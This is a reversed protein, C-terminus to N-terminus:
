TGVRPYNSGPGERLNAFDANYLNVVGTIREQLLTETPTAIYTETPQSPTPTQTNTAIPLLAAAEEDGPMCNPIILEQGPHVLATGTFNNAAMLEQLTFRDDNLAIMALSDASQVIYTCQENPIDITPTESGPICNPIILVQGLHVLATEAMNNAAMLEQLTFRDDNQVIKILSDTPQVVYTCQEDDLESDASESADDSSDLTEQNALSGDPSNSSGIRLTAQVDGSADTLTLVDGDDWVPENQEWFLSIPTNQGSRTFVSITTESFFLLEPFTFVNGDLDSLTWGTLDVTNGVNRLVVGETTVEGASLIGTVVIESSASTPALTITVAVTDTATSMSTETETSTATWIATLTPGPTSTWTSTSILPWTLIGGNALGLETEASTLLANTYAYNHIGQSGDGEIVVLAQGVWEPTDDRMDEQIAAVRDTVNKQVDDILAQMQESTQVNSHCTTCADPSGEVDASTGPMISSFTHSSRLGNKTDILQMHCTLCDPGGEASFHIGEVPGIGEVLPLGEFIDKVPHHIGDTTESGYHCSVCLVYPEDRLYTPSEVEHPDHCSACTVGFDFRELVDLPNYEDENVWKEDILYDVRQQAVSHCNICAAGFDDSEQAIALATSHSSTMWENFQMNPLEAHGTPLWHTLDDVSFPHFTDEALLNAGPHYALPYPLEGDPSTGRAHCQGCVQGDLAFNIASSIEAYESNSISSGADDAFEIHNSGPGHCAECQVGTEEWTLNNTDFGTVHCGVCNTTFEYASDPWEDALPLDTWESNTVDWQIPLTMLTDDDLRTVYAQYHRGAGLTFAVDNLNIARPKDEGPFQVINENAEFDALLVQEAIDENDELVESSVLTLAHYTTAHDEAARRHCDRCEGTGGFTASEVEEIEASLTAYVEENTRTATYTASPIPTESPEPTSTPLPTVTATHTTTATPSSTETTTATATPTRTATATATPADTATPVDAVAPVTTQTPTVPMVTATATPTETWGPVIGLAVLPGGPPQQQSESIAFGIFGALIVMLVFVASIIVVGGKRSRTSILENTTPIDVLTPASVQSSSDRPIVRQSSPTPQANKLDPLPMKFFNTPPNTAGVHHSRLALELADVFATVSEYRDEPRKALVKEFVADVEPGVEPRKESLKPIPDQVHKLAYAALNSAEYPAKGTLLSFAMVGMAYQDIAPTPEEDRFQEPAMYQATGVAIGASTYRTASQDLIRAIGFDVLFATGASDFMVNSPKIDRHIIHHQHAYDLAGALQRLVSVVEDASPLALDNQQLYRLRDQLSGGTLLRMVVYSINDVTGYEHIPVIHAHELRAVVLAERNFREIYQGDETLEPSLVKIAVDRDLSPQYGRYVAGMGGVGILARM